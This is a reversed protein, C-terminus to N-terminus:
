VSSHMIKLEHWIAEFSKGMQRKDRIQEEQSMIIGRLICEWKDKMEYRDNQSEYQNM